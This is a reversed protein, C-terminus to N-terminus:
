FLELKLLTGNYCGTMQGSFDALREQIFGEGEKNNVWTFSEGKPRIDGMRMDAIFNRFDSFSVEQRRRGGKRKGM